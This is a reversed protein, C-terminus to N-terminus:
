REILRASDEIVRQVEEERPDPLGLEKGTVAHLRKAARVLDPVKGRMEAALHTRQEPTRANAYRGLYVPHFLIAVDESPEHNELEWRIQGKDRTYGPPSIHLIAETPVEVQMTLAGIPGAWAAGTTLRYHLVAMGLFPDKYRDNRLRADYSIEVDIAQGASFRMPWVWHNGKRKPTLKKGEVRVAIRTKCDLGAVGPHLGAECPFGVLLSTARADGNALRLRASVHAKAASVRVRLDERVLAVQSSQTPAPLAGASMPLPDATAAVSHLLLLAPLIRV